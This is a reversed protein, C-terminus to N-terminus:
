QSDGALVAPRNQQQVESAASTGLRALVFPGAVMHILGQLSLVAIIGVADGFASALVIGVIMATASGTNIAGFVRGRYADPTREQQLTAFGASQAAGPLGVVIMLGFVPWLAPLALPYIAILLDFLGFLFAGYGLLQRATLRRGLAAVAFGGAIGGIAQVANIAGFESGGAHLVGILFPTLLVAFIGEGFGNLVRFLFLTSLDRRRLCLRVGDVWEHRVRTRPTSDVAADAPQTPIRMLALLAAAVLYSVLDVVAILVIGGLVALIGGLAAGLLRTLERNQGNLANAAILDEASVVQPVTAAEAPAFLQELVGQAFVVVYLIWIQSRGDMVFLPILTLALLLNTVIMARQRNWRDAYVGGLSGFLMQPMIVVLFMAGSALVSGTVLYVYFTMGINMIWDGTASVLNAGLLLRYNRNRALLNWVNRM